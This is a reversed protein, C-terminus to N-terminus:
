VGAQMGGRAGRPWLALRWGGVAAARGVGLPGRAAGFRGSRRARAVGAPTDARVPAGAPGRAPTLRRRPAAWDTGSIGAAENRPPGAYSSVQRLEQLDVFEHGAGGPAGAGGPGAGPAGASGQRHTGQMFEDFRRGVNLSRLTLAM